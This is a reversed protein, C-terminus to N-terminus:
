ADQASKLFLENLLENLLTNDPLVIRVIRNKVISLGIFCIYNPTHKGERRTQM